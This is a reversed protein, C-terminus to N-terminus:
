PQDQFTKVASAEKSAIREFVNLAYWFAVYWAPMKLSKQIMQYTGMFFLLLFLGGRLDLKHGTEEKLMANFKKFPIAILDALQRSNSQGSACVPSERCLRFLGNAEGYGAVADLTLNEGTIVLSGTQENAKFRGINKEAGLRQRLRAFYGFDGKGSPIRLRIRTSIHQRIYAEPLEAQKKENEEAM